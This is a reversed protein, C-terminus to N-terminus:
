RIDSNFFSQISVFNSEAFSTEDVEQESHYALYEILLKQYEKEKLAEGFLNEILKYQNADFKQDFLLRPKKGTEERIIKRGLAHFTYIDIDINYNKKIRERMEQAAVRTFALALIKESSIKDKRRILYAIRSSLVSTKGSGAGAVVLNHKDDRIIAIRQDIDLPYKLGDDTGEFFSDYDKLRRAIFEENYEIIIHKAFRLEKKHKRVKLFDKLHFWNIRPYKLLHDLETIFQDNENFTLYTEKKLFNHWSNEWKKKLENKEQFVQQIKRKPM